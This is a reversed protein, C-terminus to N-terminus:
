PAFYGVADAIVYVYGVDNSLKLQGAGAGATPLKVVVLNPIVQNRGFNLNSGPNPASTQNGPFVSLYSESNGDAVTVNVVLGSAGVPIGDRGTVTVARPDSWVRGALGDAFRSDIIRTPTPLSYFHDGTAGYWGVVDAIVDTSGAANFIKVAGAASLKVTVLNPITQGPLANLNSSTPQPSDAPWVQLFSLATGGTVTVNMVVSTAGAPVGGRGAVQLDRQQGPGLKANWHNGVRNDLIRAPTIGNFLEGGPSGDDYYGVIDAVVNTAGVNNAFRVVGGPGVRVTVLNPIIQGAGFNLNSANPRPLDPYVTLFSEKTPDVVTVNMVVASATAPVGTAGTVTLPRDAGAVLKANWGGTPGRSDLVRHPVISHFGAAPPAVLITLPLSSALAGPGVGNAARVGFSYAGPTTPSGALAGTVPDLTIGPPLASGPEVSFAPAPVGTARFRYSYPAGVSAPTPPTSEFFAPAVAPASPLTTGHFRNVDTTAPPPAGPNQPNFPIGPVARQNSHQWMQWASWSNPVEPCSTDPNAVYNAIWLPNAAFGSPNGLEVAWYDPNTYIVPPTGIADQVLDEVIRLNAVVTAPPVYPSTSQVDPEVDIVPLLDGPAYGAKQLQDIFIRAQTAPDYWARFYLYGGAKMGAAKMGQYNTVFANDVFFIGDLARAYGFDKGSAKVMNWNINGQFESVDVGDLKPGPQCRVTTGPTAASAVGPSIMAALAGVVVVVVTAVAV